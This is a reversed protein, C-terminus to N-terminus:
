SHLLRRKLIALDFGNIAGDKDLDGNEPAAMTGTCLLWKQMAIVDATNVQGDATVDGEASGEGFQATLEMAEELTITITADSSDAGQWGAFSSGSDPIATLTVTTGKPYSCTKEAASLALGNVAITGGGEVRLRLSSMTNDIGLYSCMHGLTYNARNEYFKSIETLGKDASNKHYNLSSQYDSSGNSSWRCYSEAIYPACNARIREVLANMREPTFVINALDSYRAIFQNRFEDNKCLNAFAGSIFGEQKQMRAFNDFAYGEKGQFGTADYTLGSTYDYDFTGFRWRGDTYPNDAEPTGKYRWSVYNHDPWDWMGTYLCVAFHDIFSTVDMRETVYAYIDPNTMDENLAYWLLGDIDEKDAEEGEELAGDKLYVVDEKAVGYNSQFYDNSYRETIDYYGWFEGDLFMVCYERDLTAMEPMLELPEQVIGDRLKDKYSVARLSFSDYSKIKKGDDATTNDEILKYNLETDGYEGRAYFNFSKHAANRTSAGKIRMGLNQTLAPTGNEFLTFQVDREWERGRSFFNAINDSDWESKKPDYPCDPILGAQWDLYQQGAVYIGRDKDTLNSPDTILSVVRINQYHAIRDSPLVFYTNSVVNSWSEGNTSAARIVTAKEVPYGPARYQTKLTISQTSNYEFQMKSLVNEQSSRNQMAIPATYKQATESTTPDSGDTTYYIDGSASLTLTHSQAADYFGSDMSFAPAALAAHNEAAPSPQMVAWEGSTPVIGYTTDESLAPIALEQVVNGAANSLTLADGSKSLGFGTHYETGTSEQKSAFVILYEGAGISASQPFTWPNASDAISWGSLDVPTDAANYLEIWDSAAGYSDTLTSKNQTCVETIQVDGQAAMTKLPLIGTQGTLVTLAAFLAAARTKTNM